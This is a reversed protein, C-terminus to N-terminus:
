LGKITTLREPHLIPESPVVPFISPNEVNSHRPEILIARKGAESPRLGTANMFEWAGLSYLVCLSFM